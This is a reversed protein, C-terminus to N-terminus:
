ARVPASPTLAPQKPHKPMVTFLSCFTAAQAPPRHSSGADKLPPITWPGRGTCAHCRSSSEHRHAHTQFQITVDLLRGRRAQDTLHPRLGGARTGWCLRVIPATRSVLRRPRARAEYSEGTRACKICAEGLRCACSTQVDTRLQRTPSVVKATGSPVRRSETM